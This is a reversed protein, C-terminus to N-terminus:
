LGTFVIVLFLVLPATHNLMLPSKNLDRTCHDIPARSLPQVGCVGEEGEDMTTSLGVNYFLQNLPTIISILCNSSPLHLEVTRNQTFKLQTHPLIYQIKYMKKFLQDKSM